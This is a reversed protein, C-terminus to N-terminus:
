LRAELTHQVCTFGHKRYFRLGAENETLVNLRMFAAGRTKGWEKAARLLATGAGKGRCEEKVAIDWVCLFRQRKYVGNDLPEQLQVHIFGVDTAGSEMILVLSDEDLLIDRILGAPRLGQAFHEPQCRVSAEDLVGYLEQLVAADDLGAARINM